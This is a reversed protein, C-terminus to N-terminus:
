DNWLIENKLVGPLKFKVDLFSDWVDNELMM